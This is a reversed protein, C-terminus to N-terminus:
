RKSISNRSWVLHVGRPVAASQIARPRAAVAQRRAGASKVLLEVGCETEFDTGNTAGPHRATANAIDAARQPDAREADAALCAQTPGAADAWEEDFLFLFWRRRPDTRIPNAQSAVSVPEMM